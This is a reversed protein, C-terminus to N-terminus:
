GFLRKWWPRRMEDRLESKLEEILGDIRQDLLGNAILEMEANIEKIREPSIGPHGAEILLKQAQAHAVQASLHRARATTM